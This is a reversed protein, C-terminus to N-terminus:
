AEAMYKFEEKKRWRNDWYVEHGNELLVRIKGPYNKGDSWSIRENKQAVKIVEMFRSWSQLLSADISDSSVYDVGDQVWRPKDVNHSLVFSPLAHSDLGDKHQGFVFYADKLEELTIKQQIFSRFIGSMSVYYKLTSM